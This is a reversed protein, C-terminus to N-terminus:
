QMPGYRSEVMLLSLVSGLGIMLLANTLGQRILAQYPTLDLLDLSTIADSLRSLRTSEAVTVYVLCGIWWTILVTTARQWWIDYSWAQWYWPDLTETTTINTATVGLVLYSGVGVILLAWRPHTGARDAMAQWQPAYRAVPALDQTVKRATILVYTYAFAVYAVQVLHTITVRLNDSPISAGRGVFARGVFFVVLMGILFGIGFRVPHGHLADNVRLTWPTVYANAM